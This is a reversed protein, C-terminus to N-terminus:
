IHSIRLTGLAHAELFFRLKDPLKRSANHLNVTLPTIESARSSLYLFFTPDYWLAVQDALPRPGAKTEENSAYRLGRGWLTAYPMFQEQGEEGPLEKGVGGRETRCSKISCFGRPVM